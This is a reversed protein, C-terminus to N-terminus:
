GPRRVKPVVTRRMVAHNSQLTEYYLTRDKNTTGNMSGGNMFM